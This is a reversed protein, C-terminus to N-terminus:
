APNGQPALDDDAERLKQRNRMLLAFFENESMEVEEVGPLRREVARRREKWGAPPGSDLQRREDSKRRCDKPKMSFSPLFVSKAFIRVLDFEAFLIDLRRIFFSM